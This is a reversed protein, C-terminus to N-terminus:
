NTKLVRGEGLHYAISDNLSAGSKTKLVRGEGLHYARAHHSELLTGTKLVRGEGLHYAPLSALAEGVDTKLM